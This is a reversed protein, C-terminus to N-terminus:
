HTTGTYGTHLNIATRLGLESSEAYCSMGLRELSRKVIYLGLGTGSQTKDRSQSRTYFPEFFKAVEDEPVRDCQNEIILRNDAVSVRIEGGSPTYRVANSIINSLARYLVAEDTSLTIPPMVCRVSLSNERVQVSYEDLLDGILEDLSVDCIQLVDEITDSKSANLIEEVLLSLKRTEDICQALYKERDKYAGVNDAMGELMGNLAAIPTKLEHSASQLMETKSRELATANDKEFKLAEINKLLSSYLSDLNQSLLGLEDGSRVSSRADPEMLQMKQTAGSIRLIPKSIQRAYVWAFFLGIAIASFFVHPLLSLMVGRAEDVPQLTTTAMIYGAMPTDVQASLTLVDGTTVPNFSRLAVAQEQQPRRIQVTGQHSDGVIISVRQDLVPQTEGTTVFLTGHRETMGLFPTSVAPLLAGAEDFSFVVANNELSFAFLMEAYVDHSGASHLQTALSYLNRQFTREKQRLYYGPMAFYLISFSIFTVLTILLSAFLFTKRVIGKGLLM